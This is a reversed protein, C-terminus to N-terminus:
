ALRLASLAKELSSLVMCIMSLRRRKRALAVNAAAAPRTPVGSDDAASAGNSVVVIRSTFFLPMQM